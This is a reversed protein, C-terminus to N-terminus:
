KLVYTLKTKIQLTFKIKIVKIAIRITYCKKVTGVPM